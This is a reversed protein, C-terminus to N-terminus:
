FVLRAGFRVSFPAYRVTPNLFNRHRRVPDSTEAGTPTQAKAFVLDEYEDLVIQQLGRRVVAHDDAILIKM